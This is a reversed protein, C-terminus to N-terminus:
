IATLGGDITFSAGTVYSSEDSLLWICPAAIEEPEAYRKMPLDELMQALNANAEAYKKTMPTWTGGPLVTNIRIGKAAYDIAAGRVLGTVGAKNACYDAGNPMGVTASTSAIAVISGGSKMALVQHKLCFFM